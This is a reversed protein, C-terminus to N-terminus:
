EFIGKTKRHEKIKIFLSDMQEIKNNIELMELLLDAEFKVMQEQYILILENNNKDLKSDIGSEIRNITETFIEIRESLLNVSKEM